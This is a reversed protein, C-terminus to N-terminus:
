RARLVVKVDHMRYIAHASFLPLKQDAMGNCFVNLDLHRELGLTM